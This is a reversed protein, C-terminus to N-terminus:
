VAERWQPEGGGVSADLLWRALAVGAGVGAGSRTEDVTCRCGEDFFSGGVLRSGALWNLTRAAQEADQSQLGAGHDLRGQCWVTWEVDDALLARLPELRSGSGSFLLTLALVDHM